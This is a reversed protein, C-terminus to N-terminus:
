LLKNKIESEIVRTDIGGNEDDYTVILNKWPFIGAREYMSLKWKHKRLYGPDNVKGAHEWYWLGNRTLITFDSSFSYNEKNGHAQAKSVCITVLFFEESLKKYREPLKSM